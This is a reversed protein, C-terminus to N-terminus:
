KETMLDPCQKKLHRRVAEAEAGSLIVVYPQTVNQGEDLEDMGRLIFEFVVKPQDGNEVWNLDITMVNDLNILTNGVRILAPERSMTVKREQTLTEETRRDPRRM